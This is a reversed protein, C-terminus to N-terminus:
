SSMKSNQSILLLMGKATITLYEKIRKYNKGLDSLICSIERRCLFSHGILWHNKFQNQNRLQYSLLISNSTKKARQSHIRVVFLIANRPLPYSEKNEWHPCWSKRLVWVRWIDQNSTNRIELAKRLPKELSLHTLQERVEESFARSWSRTVRFHLLQSM